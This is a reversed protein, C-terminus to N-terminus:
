VFIAVNQIGEAVLDGSTNWFRMIQSSYGGRAATQRTEVHWWGDKTVADQLINMQWNVSSVPGFKSFTPMAAPPLVDGLTLFAAAGTRSASDKHRSWVRIYGEDAGSVPRQGEVLRTDFNLFFSPVAAELGPPTFLDYEAPEGTM